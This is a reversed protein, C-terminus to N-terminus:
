SLIPNSKWVDKQVSGQAPFMERLTLNWLSKKMELYDSTVIPSNILNWSPFNIKSKIHLLDNQGHPVKSKSYESNEGCNLELYPYINNANYVVLFVNFQSLINRRVTTFIEMGISIPASTRSIHEKCNILRM